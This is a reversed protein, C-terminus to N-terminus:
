AGIELFDFITTQRPKPLLMKELQEPTLITFIQLKSFFDEKTEFCYFVPSYKTFRIYYFIGANICRICLNYSYEMHKSHKSNLVNTLEKIREIQFKDLM